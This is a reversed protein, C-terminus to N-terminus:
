EVVSKRDLREVTRAHAAAYRRNLEPDRSALARFEITTRAWATEAAADQAFREWLARPADAGGHEEVIRAHQEAREDIRRHLLTLFLDAKSDFQSYLVGKSFGAEEAIM